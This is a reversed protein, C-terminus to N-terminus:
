FAYKEMLVLANLKVTTDPKSVTFLVTIPTEGNGMRLLARAFSAINIAFPSIFQYRGSLDSFLIM